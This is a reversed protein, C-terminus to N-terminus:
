FLFFLVPKLDVLQMCISSIQPDCCYVSPVVTSVIYCLPCLVLSSLLGPASLRVDYHFGKGVCGQDAHHKLQECFLFGM